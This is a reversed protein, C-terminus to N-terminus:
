SRGGLCVADFTAMNKGVPKPDDLYRLMEGARPAHSGNLVTKFREVKGGSLKWYSYLIWKAEDIRGAYTLALITNPQYWPEYMVCGLKSLALLYDRYNTESVVVRDLVIYDVYQAFWTVHRAIEIRQPFDKELGPSFIPTVRYYDHNMWVATGIAVVGLLAAIGNAWENRYVRVRDPGSPLRNLVVASSASGEGYALWGLCYCVPLLFYTYWLPFEVQSHILVCGIIGFCLFGSSTFVQRRARWLVCAILLTCVLTVPVGFAFAMQLFLNHSHTMVIGAKEAAGELYFDSAYHFIGSGFWPRMAILDWTLRWVESRVGVGETATQTLKNAGYFDISAYQSITYLTIWVFAAFVGPYIAKWWQRWGMHISALVTLFAVEMLATRSGCSVLGFVLLPSALFMTLKAAKPSLLGQLAFVAAIGMCLFTGQHNPQRIFGFTRGAQAAPSILFLTGDLKFYQAIAAVSALAGAGLLSFCIARIWIDRFFGAHGAHGAWTILASLGIYLVPMLWSISNTRGFYLFQTGTTLLLLAFAIGCTWLGTTLKEFAGYRSSLLVVMAFGVLSVIEGAFNTLPLTGYGFLFPSGVAIFCALFMIRFLSAHTSEPSLQM